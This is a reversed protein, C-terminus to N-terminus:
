AEQMVVKIGILKPEVSHSSAVQSIITISYTYNILHQNFEFCSIVFMLSRSHSPVLHTTYLLVTAFESLVSSPSCCNLAIECVCNVGLGSITCDFRLHGILQLFPQKIELNADTQHLKFRIYWRSALISVFISM